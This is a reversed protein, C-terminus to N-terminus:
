KRLFEKRIRSLSTDTIGLYTAIHKLPANQIIESKTRILNEYRQEATQNIMSLMRQKLATISQVLIKRGFERFEPISHFLVQVQEYNIILGKCDTMTQFDEQAPTRNFFSSVELVVQNKFYFNTTIDKGDTDFTYSRIFGELLFIYENSVKGTELLLVNKPIVIEKFHKAIESAIETPIPLVSQIFQILNQNAM